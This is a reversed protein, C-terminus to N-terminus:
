KIYNKNNIEMKKAQINDVFGAITIEENFYNHLDKFSIKKM